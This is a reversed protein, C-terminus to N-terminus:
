NVHPTLSRATTVDRGTSVVVRVPPRGRSRGRSIRARPPPAIPVAWRGPRAADWWLASTVVYWVVLWINARIDNESVFWLMLSRCGIFPQQGASFSRHTDIIVIVCFCWLLLMYNCTSSIYVFMNVIVAHHILSLLGWRGVFIDCNNQKVKRTAM